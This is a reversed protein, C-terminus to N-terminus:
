ETIYFKGNHKLSITLPHQEILEAQTECDTLIWTLEYGENDCTTLERGNEHVVQCGYEAPTQPNYGTNAELLAAEGM